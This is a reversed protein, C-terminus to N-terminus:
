DEDAPRTLIIRHKTDPQWGTPAAKNVAEELAQIQDALEKGPEAECDDYAEYWRDQIHGMLDVTPRFPTCPHVRWPEDVGDCILNEIAEDSGEHYSGDNAVYIYGGDDEVVPLTSWREAEDSLKKEWSKTKHAACLTSFRDVPEECGHEICACHNEIYTQNTGTVGCKACAYFVTDNTDSTFVHVPKM